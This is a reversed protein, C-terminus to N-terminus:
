LYFRFLLDRLLLDSRRSITLLWDQNKAYCLVVYDYVGPAKNTDETFGGGTVMPVFTRM